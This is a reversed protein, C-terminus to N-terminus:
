RHGPCVPRHTDQAQEPPPPQCACGLLRRRGRPNASVAVVPCRDQGRRGRGTYPDTVASWMGSEDDAIRDGLVHWRAILAQVDARGNETWKTLGDSPIRVGTVEHDPTGVLAQLAFFSLGHPERPTHMQFRHSALKKRTAWLDSHPAVVDHGAHPAISRISEDLSKIVQRRNSGDHLDLVLEGCGAADLRRTVAGIAARKEAVFLVSKGEASLSSILNAITQSKGTGPPGHIVLSQGRMAANLAQNQSADSDCVLFDEEPPTRDPLDAAVEIGLNITDLAEADGAIAAVVDNEVLLDLHNEMDNVMPLKSFELNALFLRDDIAFGPLEQCAAAVAPLWTRFDTSRDDADPYPDRGRDVRMAHVLSPNVEAPARLEVMADHGGASGLTIRIPIMAVPARPTHGDSRQWTAFSHGIYLTALGKEEFNTRAKAALALSRLAADALAEPEFIESLGASGEHLLKSVGEPKVGRRTPTIELTGRRLERFYLMRNRGDLNVLRRTWDEVAERVTEERDQGAGAPTPPVAGLARATSEGMPGMVPALWGKSGGNTGVSERESIDPAREAESM